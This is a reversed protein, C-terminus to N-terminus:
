DNETATSLDDLSLDLPSALAAVIFFSPGAIRHQEVKRLTDLSVDASQALQEQSLGQQERSAALLRGLRQARLRQRDDTRPRGM